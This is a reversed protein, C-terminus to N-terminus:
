QLQNLYISILTMFRFTKALTQLRSSKLFRVQPRCWLWLFSTFKGISYKIIMPYWIRIYCTFVFNRRVFIRKVCSDRKENSLVDDELSILFSNWKLLTQEARLEWEREERKENLGEKRKLMESVFVYQLWVISRKMSGPSKCSTYFITLHIAIFLFFFIVINVRYGVAAIATESLVCECQSYTYLTHPINYQALYFQAAGRNLTM